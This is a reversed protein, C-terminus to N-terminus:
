IQRSYIKQEDWLRLHDQERLWDIIERKEQPMLYNKRGKYKVKFADVGDFLAINKWKSIFQQSVQLIEKIELYHQGQLTMKVGLARKLERADKTQSIFHDIEKILSM